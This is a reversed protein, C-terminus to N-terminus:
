SRIKPREVGLRTNLSEQTALEHATGTRLTGGAGVYVADKPAANRIEGILRTAPIPTNNWEAQMQAEAKARAAAELDIGARDAILLLYLSLGYAASTGLAVLLDM